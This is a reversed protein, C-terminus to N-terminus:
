ALTFVQETVTGMVYTTVVKIRTCKLHRLQAPGADGMGHAFPILDDLGEVYLYLHRTDVGQMIGVTTVTDKTISEPQM